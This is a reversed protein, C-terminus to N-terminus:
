KCVSRRVSPRCSYALLRDYQTATRDAIFHIPPLHRLFTVLILEGPLLLNPRACSHGFDMLCTEGYSERLRRLTALKNGVQQPSTPLVAFLRLMDLYNATDTTTISNPFFVFCCVCRVSKQGRWSTASQSHPFQHLPNQGFSTVQVHYSVYLESFFITTNLYKNVTVVLAM